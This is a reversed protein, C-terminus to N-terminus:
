QADGRLVPLDEGCKILMAKHTKNTEEDFNLCGDPTALMLKQIMVRCLGFSEFIILWFIGNEFLCIWINGSKDRVLIVLDLALIAL